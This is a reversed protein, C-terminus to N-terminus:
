KMNKASKQEAKLANTRTKLEAELTQIDKAKVETELVFNHMTTEGKQIATELDTIARLRDAVDRLAYSLEDQQKSLFRVYLDRTEKNLDAQRSNSEQQKAVTAQLRKVENQEKVYLSRLATTMKKAEKVSVEMQKAHAQEAKLEAKATKLAEANKQLGVEIENLKVRYMAPATAYLTRLSDFKLDELQINLPNAHQAFVSMSMAAFALLIIKKM